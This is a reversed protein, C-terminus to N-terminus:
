ANSVEQLESQIGCREVCRIIDVLRPKALHYISFGDAREVDVLSNLRLIRLQQSISSQRAGLRGAMSSVNEDGECLLAIIRLRLPHALAKLINACHDAHDPNDCLGSM